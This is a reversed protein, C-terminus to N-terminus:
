LVIEKQLTLSYIVKEKVKMGTMQELARQYYELQRHYRRVLEQEQAHRVHDTKYDIVVLGDPEKMYADIIGQILVLEDSRAVGMDRASMGLVFQQEKYLGKQTAASSMRRGLPSQFFKLLVGAEVLKLDEAKVKELAEFQDLQGQIQEKSDAMTFDLLELVRHYITGRYSGEVTEETKMFDPITPLFDVVKPDANGDAPFWEVSEEDDLNQGPHKLESVSMKTHLTLDAMHPYQFELVRELQERYEKSYVKSTDFQLLEEKTMKKTIQQTLEAGVLEMLLVQQWTCRGPNPETMSMLVWELYSGAQSLITYPVKGDVLPVNICRDIKNQMYRDAATMILKEKARTMAVYLVRLEEGLSEVEMHRRLAQKKLTTTKTRQELDLHDTGIGLDPDILLKSYVDQKNFSKAMGAVIVVPFELGKSKHISMIRVTNEGEGVTSAEGFDTNYKKLQEIYRIFHFLGKYSTQEYAAAKEVLMDLNARRIDGAPMASIYDYYGTSSYVEYLLEHISLYTAGSTLSKLLEQFRKLKRGTDTALDAEEMGLWRELAGYLGRDQGKEPDTKYAATLYALEDDDIGVIPSKLVAALPIDQMPNDIVALMSLITEVEITDFYGTRSEAYAPIGDHILINLLVESWGSVSRLLIVIDSYRAVRYCSKEKDWVKLGTEPHVLERIKGAIMKAELERTTYDSSDDKTDLTLLETPTGVQGEGDYEAYQAGPNLAVTKDYHIHGLSMTMIRYFIDNISELVSARSRFNKHLEIMQCNAVGKQYNDYKQLFIEPRALRFKYISQKVDGVMFINPTGYRERSISNILTEQVYNSDQYEDILIEEFQRSLEDAVPSPKRSGDEQLELLIELAYHELDNFDVINKEKKSEQYRVAFEEALNLLEGVASSTGCIESLVNEVSDTCYLEKIKSISKKVRDRSSTVYDKTDPDAEGKKVAPLRGFVVKVLAENVAGYGAEISKYVKQFLGQEEQLNPLYKRLGAEAEAECVDIIDQYQEVLEKVQEGLDSLLFQMWSLSDLEGAEMDELEKRQSQIWESPWPNSQSFRYVQHIYDEIGSDTKGGGYTEVFDAFSQDGQAYHDELLDKMVENEMLMLEGEDGIRFAPDLELKNYHNRIVNLCFSDITTIQAHHVLTAQMQLHEDEPHEALKKDIAISIKERMESAAANTFTMVLLQDIDMPHAEDTIMQIIREVLVATKGSGAAAAVLLNKHRTDIVQQQEDTWNTAM